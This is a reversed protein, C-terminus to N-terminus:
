NNDNIITKAIEKAHARWEQMEDFEKKHESDNIEMLYNNIIAQMKDDSYKERIIASVLTSYDYSLPTRFAEYTYIIGGDMNIEKEDFCFLFTNKERNKLPMKNNSELYM